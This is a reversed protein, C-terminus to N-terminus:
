LGAKGRMTPGSNRRETKKLERLADNLNVGQVYYNTEGRGGSAANAEMTKWQQQTMVYEPQRSLNIAATNPALVGGSDYVGGQIIDLFNFEDKPQQPPPPTVPIGAAAGAGPFAPPGPPAGLAQGHVATGSPVPTGPAPAQGPGQGQAMAEGATIAIPGGGMNPMFATPDVDSLWRPAGFPSLIETLAGIGIGAMEVGYDVGRKAIDAGIQIGAGAAQGGGGMSGMSAAMKGADAAMQIAGKAAEGGLAIFSGAIGGGTKGTFGAGAPIYGETRGMQPAQAPDVPQEPIPGPFAGQAQGHLLTNPDIGQQQMQRIQEPNLILEPKGTANNVPTIGPPLWGGTDYTKVWPPLPIPGSQRTHVHDQHGALDGSFYGPQPQGGAIEVSAGTAPNQWIVQELSGPVTKLYDAFRQMNAAPGSWDIGRNLGQPNPAYGPENRDSEQHGAYTSPKIGFADAIQMVWPPFTDSTGTGYGGTNTGAPLGYNGGRQATAINLSAGQGGQGSLGLLDDLGTSARRPTGGTIIDLPNQSVPGSGPVTANPSLSDPSFPVGPTTPPLPQNDNDNFPNNFSINKWGGKLFWMPSGPVQGSFISTNFLQDLQNQLEMIGWSGAVVAAGPGILAGSLAGKTKGASAPLTTGLMSNVTKLSTILTSVGSITKWAGFGIVAAQILGPYERLLDAGTKLPPGVAEGFSKAVGAADTFFEKIEPGNASIWGNFEDFKTTLTNVAETPGALANASDGGFMETLFNAGVRAIAAQMNDVSGSFSQGMKQAAGGLKTDLARAFDDANVKGDEVMKQFEEATVGYQERLTQFIPIGRDALMQLDDTFAKGNTQVKNFISAMEDFSTGAVAATDAITTLYDTLEKGPKVGAAVASAAANAAQDLSFATGKVAQAASDMIKQVDEASNGLAQLKFKAQDISELRQFGKNLTYGLATVAGAASTAALGIGVRLAGGISRGIVTGVRTGVAAGRREADSQFGTMFKASSASSSGGFSSDLSKSMATGMRRGATAAQKDTGAFAKEISRGVGDTSVSLAIYASALEVGKTAM